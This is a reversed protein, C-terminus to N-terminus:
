ASRWTSTRPLPHISGPNTLALLFLAHTQVPISGTASKERNMTPPTTESFVKKGGFRVTVVLVNGNKVTERKNINVKVSEPSLTSAQTM